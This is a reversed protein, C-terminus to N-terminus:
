SHSPWSFNQLALHTDQVAPKNFPFQSGPTQVTFIWAGEHQLCAIVLLLILNGSPVPKKSVGTLESYFINWFLYVTIKVTMRRLLPLAWSFCPSSHKIFVLAAWHEGHTHMFPKLLRVKQRGSLFVFLCSFDANPWICPCKRRGPWSPAATEQPQGLLGSYLDM